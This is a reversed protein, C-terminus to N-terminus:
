ASKQSALFDAGKGLDTRVNIGEACLPCEHAGWASLPMHALAITRPSHKIQSRTAPNSRDCLAGVGVVFGGHAKVADVINNVTKCTNLIDEVILIKKGKVVADYGRKFIFRDSKKVLREGRFLRITSDGVGHSIHITRVEVNNKNEDSLVLSEEKEAFVAPVSRGEMRGLHYATWQSLIIGGKEPGVVVDIDSGTYREAILRCLMSVQEPCLYLADKNVYADGHNGSNYVFHGETIIAGCEKLIQVTTKGIRDM